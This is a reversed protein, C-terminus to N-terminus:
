RIIITSNTYYVRLTDGGGGGGGGDGGGRTSNFRTQSGILDARRATVEGGEGVLEVRNM